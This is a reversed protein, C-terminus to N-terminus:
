NRIVEYCTKGTALYKGDASFAVKDGKVDTVIAQELYGGKIKLIYLKEPTKVAINGYPDFALGTVMDPLRGKDLKRLPPIEHTTLLQYETGTAESDILDFVDVKGGQYGVAFRNGEVDYAVAKACSFDNKTYKGFKGDKPLNLECVFGEGAVSMYHECPSIDVGYLRGGLDEQKCPYIENKSPNARFTMLNGKQTVVAIINNKSYAFDNIQDGLLQFLNKAKLAKLYPRMEGVLLKSNEILGAVVNGEIFCVGSNEQFPLDFCKKLFMINSNIKQPQQEMLKKLRKDSRARVVLEDL